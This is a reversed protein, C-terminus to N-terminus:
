QWYSRTRMARLTAQDIGQIKLLDDYKRVIGYRVAAQIEQARYHDVRPIRRLEAITATRINVLRKEEDQRRKREDERWQAAQAETLVPGDVPLPVARLIARAYSTEIGERHRVSPGGRAQVEFDCVFDWDPSGNRCTVAHVGSRRKMETVVQEETTAPYLGLDYLFAVIGFPGVYVLLLLFGITVWLSKKDM